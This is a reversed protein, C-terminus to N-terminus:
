RYGDLSKVFSRVGLTDEVITITIKFDTELTMVQSVNSGSSYTAAINRSGSSAEFYASEGGSPVTGVQSNDITITADVGPVQNNFRVDSRYDKPSINEVSTDVCGSVFMLLAIGILFLLNNKNM